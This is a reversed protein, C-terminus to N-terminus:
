GRERMWADAVARGTAVDDVVLILRHDHHSYLVDINV